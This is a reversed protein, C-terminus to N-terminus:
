TDTEKTSPSTAVRRQSGASIGTCNIAIRLRRMGCNTRLARGIAIRALPLQQRRLLRQSQAFGLDGSRRLRANIRRTM